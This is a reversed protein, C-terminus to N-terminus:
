PSATHARRGLEILMRAALYLRPPIADIEIYENRAHYGWGALGLGELVAAKGQREVKAGGFEVLRAGFTPDLSRTLRAACGGAM